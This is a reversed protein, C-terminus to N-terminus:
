AFFMKALGKELEKLRRSIIRMAEPAHLSHVDIVNWPMSAFREEMIGEAADYHLQKARAALRNAETRYFFAENPRGRAAYEAAQAQLLAKYAKRRRRKVKKRKAEEELEFIPQRMTTYIERSAATSRVGPPTGSRQQPMRPLSPRFFAKNTSEGSQNLASNQKNSNNSRWRLGNQAPFNDHM